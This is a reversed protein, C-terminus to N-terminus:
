KEYDVVRSAETVERIFAVVELHAPHVAYESLGEKTDFTSYLSLDFARESRGFDIGVEMNRLTEVKGVLGELMTKAQAINSDRNEEKFKFM